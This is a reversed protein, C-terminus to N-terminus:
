FDVENFIITNKKTKKMGILFGIETNSKANKLIYVRSEIQM